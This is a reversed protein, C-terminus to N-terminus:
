SLDQVVFAKALLERFVVLSGRISSGLEDLLKREVLHEVARTHCVLARLRTFEL